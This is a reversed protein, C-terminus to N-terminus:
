RTERMSVSPCLKAMYCSGCDPIKPRCWNRGIEWASFDFIGPYEPHMARATYMLEDNTAHSRTLGLRTFVRRVQVDPSVDISYKDSVPVKFRRVLINTAMTAIKPGVGDFELFRLVILASSPRGDWIRSAVGGYLHQINQIASFLCGAMVKNFRHLPEPKRMAKLIEKKTLSALVKFEFSGLREKLNQPILWAREAKIQRDMICAFVFAHPHNDLDNLLREAAPNGTKFDCPKKPESLLAKGRQVLERTIKNSLPLNKPSNM